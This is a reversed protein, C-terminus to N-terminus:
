LHLGIEHLRFGPRQGAVCFLWEDNEFRASLHIRPAHEGRYKISNGILNQLIQVMHDDDNFVVPLTDHTVIAGTQRVQADLNVLVRDLVHELNVLKGSRKEIGGLQSYTLLATILSAMRAAADEITALFSRSEPEMEPGARQSVLQAYVRITRVPEQLDHSAIYAFSSLEANSRALELNLRLVEENMRLFLTEAIVPRLSSAFTRDIATWQESSDHFTQQWKAFSRRPSIREGADTKEVPKDPDGAWTIVHTVSPRFWLVFDPSGLAIRVSLLGSAVTDFENAKEYVASMRETSFLHERQNFSLWAALGEVQLRTPTTGLLVIEGRIIFACGHAGIVAAVDDGVLSLAAVVDRDRRMREEIRATVALLATVHARAGEEEAMAIHSSFVRALVECTIRVPQPVIKAEGHHCAILGWLKDDKVISISMSAAVGMNRLYEVHVPSMARLVCYTMDLATGTFPNVSPVLTAVAANVDAKLRLTNLLYLRRAQAPIDSAPYRLGLYPIIDQRKDEAIVCGTGDELFRYVMVRDFGTISRIRVAIRQCLDTLSLRGGLEAMATTLSAFIDPGPVM